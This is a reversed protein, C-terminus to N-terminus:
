REAAIPTAARRSMGPFAAPVHERGIDLSPGRILRELTQAGPIPAAIMLKNSRDRVAAAKAEEM